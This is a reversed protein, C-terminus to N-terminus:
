AELVTITLRSHRKQILGRAFRSGHSKDMRKIKMGEGVLISDFVLHDQNLQHNKANAIVNQIEKVLLRSAKTNTFKLRTLAETPSLKKVQNALLLLKRPSIKLNKNVHRVLKATAPALDKTPTTPTATKPM